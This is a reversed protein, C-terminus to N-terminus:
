LGAAVAAELSLARVEKELGFALLSDLVRKLVVPEAQGPGGEGLALLSLLVVEGIRPPYAPAQEEQADSDFSEIDSTGVDRSIIELRNWLATNPMAVTTRQSGDLLVEWAEDPIKDGLVELLSYLLAAKAAGGQRDRTRSWWAALQQGGWDETGVTGALRAVPLLMDLAEASEENYLSNARLLALWPPVAQMDGGILLARIVEPAFWVLEASPPIRRLIPMFVRVTSAYRGGERALSLARTVAEAQATPVTQILATRYLLARSMPGSEAEARSLPNAMEQDSFSVSTYLQRLTDTPLAGAQEAREAAELRLEVPANPSVAITRLIGPRNSSVVNAPLKVKAIRAMSLHLPSPDPLSKLEVKAGALADVLKFFAPDEDGTEVLLSVGLAAADHEGALAQCFIFAKQWYQSDAVGIQGAALSCARANDNALFRTDAEHRNLPDYQSRGPTADLLQVVGTIDGMESLMGVRRIIHSATPSLGAPVRAPTLLLRRMMDRMTSSGVNVPIRKMMTELMRKSTGTWMDVGFGGGEVGLIGTTDPDITQLSGVSVGDSQVISLSDIQVTADDDPSVTTDPQTLDSPQGPALPALRVPGSSFGQAWANGSVAGSVAFSLAVAILATQIDARSGTM